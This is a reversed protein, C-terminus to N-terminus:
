RLKVTDLRLSGNQIDLSGQMITPSGTLNSFFPNYGGKLIINKKLDMLLPGITHNGAVALITTNAGAAKYADGISSYGTSAIKAVPGSGNPGLGFQATVNKDTNMTLACPAVGTCDNLWGDFTSDPSTTATLSVPTGEQFVVSCVGSGGTSCIIGGADGTVQGNGIGVTASPISITLLHGYSYHFVTGSGTGTYITRGDSSVAITKMLRNALGTTYPGDGSWQNFAATAPQAMLCVLFIPLLHKLRNM